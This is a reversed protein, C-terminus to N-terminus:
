TRVAGPDTRQRVRDAAQPRLGAIFARNFGAWLLVPVLSPFILTGAQYGLAIAERRWGSLGAQMAVEPGSLVGVQALFDFAVSWAHFPLLAVAGAAIKWPRARTALMLAVFLALGYTYVLPNVEAVLFGVQGPAARTEVGTVFALMFGSRELASVLGTRWPEVLQLALPGVVAAYYAATFYWAAFCPPLLLLTRVVFRGVSLAPASM